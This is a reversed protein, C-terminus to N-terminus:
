NQFTLELYNIERNQSDLYTRINASLLYNLNYFQSDDSGLFLFHKEIRFINRNTSPVISVQFVNNQNAIEQLKRGNKEGESLVEDEKCSLFLLPLLLIIFLLKRQNM